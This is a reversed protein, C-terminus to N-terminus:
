NVCAFRIMAAFSSSILDNFITGTTSSGAASLFVNNWDIKSNNNLYCFGRTSQNTDPAKKEHIFPFRATPAPSCAGASVGLAFVLVTGLALTDGISSLTM